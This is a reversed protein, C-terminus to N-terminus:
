YNFKPNWEKESHHLMDIMGWVPSYFDGPGFTDCAVRYVKDERKLFSTFGPWYRQKDNEDLFSFGMDETFTSGAASYYPFKWDRGAAFERMTVYDNPTTLAFACRNQIHPTSSSLGDAWLTCYPCSKGMNHILILEEKGDFLDHIHVEKGDQDKFVYNQVEELGHAKALEIQRTRLEAIQKYIADLEQIDKRYLSMM